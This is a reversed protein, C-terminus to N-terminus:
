ADTEEEPHYPADDPATAAPFPPPAVAGAAV